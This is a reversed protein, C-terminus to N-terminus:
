ASARRESVAEDDRELASISFGGSRDRFRLGAANSRPALPKTRTHSLTVVKEEKGADDVHFWELTFHDRDTITYVTHLKYPKGTQPDVSEGTSSTVNGDNSVTGENHMVSTHLNDIMLEFFKKRTNDYGLVQIVTYPEGQFRSNYELHLFRGGLISKAVCKSTGEHFKDGLQYRLAVDWTGALENLRNHIPGPLDPQVRDRKPQEQQSLATTSALILGLVLPM